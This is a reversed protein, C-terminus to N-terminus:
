QLAFTLTPDSDFMNGYFLLTLDTDGKPHEFVLTGEVEGGSALEGSSLATDSDVISISKDIIQKKSNMSKYDFPNYSINEEGTNQIKLSVIVYEMGDKPTDFQDGSSKEVGTVTITEGEYTGSEGLPIITDAEATSEEAAPSEESSEAAMSSESASSAPTSSDDPTEEGFLGVLVGIVVIVAAAIIVAVLCGNKKKKPAPAPASNWTPAQNTPQEAANPNFGCEPCCKSEFETGCKPCKM